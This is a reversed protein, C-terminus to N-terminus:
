LSYNMLQLIGSRPDRIWFCSCFLPTFFSQQLVNKKAVFKVSHLIIKNKFQQVTPGFKLSNYFKKGLFNDSLEWFYSNPIRSGPDPIFRNRIGSGSTLFAGSEPDPDAISPLIIFWSSSVVLWNASLNPVKTRSVKKFVQLNLRWPRPLAAWLSDPSRQPGCLKELRRM